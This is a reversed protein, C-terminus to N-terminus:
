FSCFLKIKKPPKLIKRVDTKQPQKTQKKLIM